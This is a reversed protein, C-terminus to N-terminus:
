KYSKTFDDIHVGLYKVFKVEEIAQKNILITIPFKPKNIAHFIDFNMKTINLSLHIICLWEYFNKLEKNMVKKLANLNSDELYINTDDAFLFFKLYKSINPLDNIYLFFLILGLVSGQPVECTVIKTESDSGNVSVYQMRDTLYSKFWLLVDDRIGYHTLPLAAQELALNTPFFSPICNWSTLKEM